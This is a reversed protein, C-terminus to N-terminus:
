KEMETVIKTTGDPYCIEKTGDPYCKEIQGNNFKIITLGNKFTTQTIKDEYFYYVIKGDPYSQKIDKNNLYVINYGDDFMIKRIGNPFIIEKKGNEYILIVKGETGKEHKVIKSNQQPIGHYKEPFKMDWISNMVEKETKINEKEDKRDNTLKCKLTRKFRNTDKTDFENITNSDNSEEKAFELKMEDNFFVKNNLNLSKKQIHVINLKNIHPVHNKLKISREDHSRREDIDSNGGSSLKHKLNISEFENNIIEHEEESFNISKKDKSYENKIAEIEKQKVIEDLDEMDSISLIKEKHQKHTTSNDIKLLEEYHTLKSNLAIVMNESHFLEKKLNEITSQYQKEKEKLM